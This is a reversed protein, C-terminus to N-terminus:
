RLGKAKNVTEMASAIRGLTKHIKDLKYFFNRVVLWFVASLVVLGVFAGM